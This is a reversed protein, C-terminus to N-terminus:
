VNNEHGAANLLEICLEDPRNPLICEVKKLFWKVTTYQEGKNFPAELQFPQLTGISLIHPTHFLLKTVCTRKLVAQKGRVRGLHAPDANRGMIHGTRLKRAIEVVIHSNWRVARDYNNCVDRTM